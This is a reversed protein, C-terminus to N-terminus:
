EQTVTKAWAQIAEDSWDFGDYRHVPEYYEGSARPRNRWVKIPIAISALGSPLAAHRIEMYATDSGTPYGIHAIGELEFLADAFDLCASACAGHTLLYVPAKVPNRVAPPKTKTSKIAEDDVETYFDQGQAYAEQSREYTRQFSEVVEEKYGQEIVYEVIFGLHAINDESLRWDISIDHNVARSERYDEGWLADIMEDGWASSGGQNGRLDIVISKADRLEARRKTIEAFLERNKVTGEENPSFDPLNIWFESPRIEAMGTDPRMGFITKWRLEYFVRDPAPRWDLQRTIAAGSELIFDCEDLRGVFPNGSYVFLNYARRAWYSDQDPKGSDFQFVHDRMLDKVPIGDCSVVKAGLLASLEPEAHTVRVTDARWAPLMGPWVFNTEGDYQGNAYVVFHGDRFRATYAQLVAAYGPEDTVLRALKMANDLSANAQKMFGPNEPDRPGPHSEMMMKHAAELDQQAKIAWENTPTNVDSSCGTLALLVIPILFTRLRNTM